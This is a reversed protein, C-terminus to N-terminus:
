ALHEESFLKSKTPDTIYKAALLTGTISMTAEQEASILQRQQAPTLSVKHYIAKVPKDGDAVNVGTFAVAVEVNNNIMGEIRQSAAKTYSVVVVDGDTIPNAAGSQDKLIEIGSDSVIYNEGEVYTTMEDESDVSTIESIFGPVMVVKGLYAADSFTASPNEADEYLEGFLLDKLVDPKFSITEISLEGNQATTIKHTVTNKGSQTEKIELAETSLSATASNCTGINSWGGTPKDNADIKSFLVSGSGVYPITDYSYNNGKM